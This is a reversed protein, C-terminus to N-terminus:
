YFKETFWQNFQEDYLSNIILSYTEKTDTRSWKACKINNM